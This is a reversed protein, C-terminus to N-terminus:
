LANLYEEFPTLDESSKLLALTSEWLEFSFLVLYALDREMHLKAAIQTCIEVLRPINKLKEIAEDVKPLLDDYSTAGLEKLMSTQYAEIEM